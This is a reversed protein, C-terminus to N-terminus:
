KNKGSNLKERVWEFLEEVDYPKSLLKEGGKLWGNKEIAKGTYGSSFIVGSDPYRKSFEKGIDTGSMGKPLVMDTLLLDIEPYDDMVLLASPGDGVELVTYGKTSLAKSVFKRVGQDDEVLLITGAAKTRLDAPKPKKAKVTKRTKTARLYLKFTTGDGPESYVTVLGGSQKMFGYVMSLGLGTGKEVSKTTFFPEFVRDRVEPPMGHGNDSISLVVYDGPIIDKLDANSKTIKKEEVEFILRGGDPMADRANITLNLLSNELESEDVKVFAEEEMLHTEIEISEDIIRKFMPMLDRVLSNVEVVDPHLSQKRSFALLRHTLDGGRRTSKIAINLCERGDESIDTEVMEFLQLSGRIATLINNFDHAIGGSLNGVAEM